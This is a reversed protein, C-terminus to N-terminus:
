KAEGNRLAKASAQHFEMEFADPTDRARQDHWKAAKELTDRVLTANAAEVRAVYERAPEAGHWNGPEGTGGSLVQYIEYITSNATRAESAHGQAQLLLNANERTLREVEARRDLLEDLIARYASATIAVPDHDRAGGSLDRLERLREDSLTEAM